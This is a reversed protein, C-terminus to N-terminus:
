LLIRFVEMFGGSFSEILKPPVLSGTQKYWVGLKSTGFERNPPVLSGPSQSTRNRRTKRRLETVRNGVKYM